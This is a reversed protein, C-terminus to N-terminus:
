PGRAQGQLIYFEQPLNPNVANTATITFPLQSILYNSAFTTIYNTAVPTWQSLPLALNTSMLTYFLRGLEGNTGSLVLNTNLMVSINTIAPQPIVLPVIQEPYPRTAGPIDLTGDGLEGFSNDGMSWLTGDSKIFYSAVGGGSVAVVNSAVIQIPVDPEVFITGIGLQGNGNGGMGWLSGDSKIFLSHYGGAAIAIVNSAVQEPSNKQVTSGDGLQGSMNDGMAWLSGDSKLFLTHLAGAAVATVNSSAIEQFTPLEGGSIGIGLEGETNRGAAWLSGDNRVYFYSDFGGSIGTVFDLILESSTIEEPTLQPQLDGNFVGTDNVGMGWLGETSRLGGTFTTFFSAYSAAAVGTVESSEIQEPVFRNNTTGDGLQGYFNYGMAWLTQNSEVFLSHFTGASVAFVNGAVILQSFNTQGFGSGLGLQGLGNTGMGWLSGDSEIFLCHEAGGSVKTVTQAAMRTSLFALASVCAVFLLARHMRIPFRLDHTM